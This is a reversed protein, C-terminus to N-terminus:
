SFARQAADAASRGVSAKGAEQAAKLEADGGGGGSATGGGIPGGSGTGSQVTTSKLGAPVGALVDDALLQLHDATADESLRAARDKSRAFLRGQADWELRNMANDLYVERVTEDTIGELRKTLDSRTQRQRMDALQEDRRKIEKAHAAAAADADKKAQDRIADADPAKDQAAKLDSKLTDREKTLTTVEEGKADLDSQLEERGAKKGDAFVAAHLRPAKSKLATAFAKPEPNTALLQELLDDM